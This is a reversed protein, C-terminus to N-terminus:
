VNLNQGKAEKFEVIKPDNYGLYSRTTGEHTVRTLIYISTFAARVIHAHAKSEKLGKIRNSSDM